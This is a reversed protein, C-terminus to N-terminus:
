RGTCRKVASTVQLRRLPAFSARVANARPTCGDDFTTGGACILLVMFIAGNTMANHVLGPENQFM